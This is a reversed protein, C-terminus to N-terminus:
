IEEALHTLKVATVRYSPCRPDDPAIEEITDACGKLWEALQCLVTEIDTENILQGLRQRVEKNSM